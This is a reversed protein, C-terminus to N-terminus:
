VTEDGYFVPEGVSFASIVGVDFACIEERSSQTNIFTVHVRLSRSLAAGVWQSINGANTDLICKLAKILRASTVQKSQGPNTVSSITVQYNAKSTSLGAIVDEM